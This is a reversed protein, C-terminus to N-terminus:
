VMEEFGLRESLHYRQSHWVRGSSYEFIAIADSFRGGVCVVQVQELALRARVEALVGVLRTEVLLM